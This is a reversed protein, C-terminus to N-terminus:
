IPLLKGDIPLLLLLLLVLVLLPSQTDDRGEDPSLHARNLGSGATRVGQRQDYGARGRGRGQEWAQAQARGRSPPLVAERRDLAVFLALLVEASFATRFTACTCLYPWRTQATGHPEASGAPM